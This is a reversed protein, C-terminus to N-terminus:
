GLSLSYGSERLLRTALSVPLGVVNFYCGEIRDVFRSALGQIGYAGAKDMPEGSAVYARIEGATMPLFFVRTESVDTRVTEGHRVCVGTFVSHGRGSLLTLMRAADGASQPKELVTGDIAVITDAALVFDGPEAPVARAKDQSLRLVYDQPSEGDTRVEDVGSVRVEFSYGANRLLEQRRPSQSALILTM